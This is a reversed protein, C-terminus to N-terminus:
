RGPCHQGGNNRQEEYWQEFQEPTVTRYDSFVFRTRSMDVPLEAGNFGIWAMGARQAALMGNASDEVVMCEMPAVGLKEAALLFVDPEPKSHICSQASVVCEFYEQLGLRLAYDEIVEQPSSSAVALQYGRERLTQLFKATGPFAPLGHVDLDHRYRDWHKKHLEDIDATVGAAALLRPWMEADPIGCYHLFHELTYTYGLEAMLDRMVPFHRSESDLLVGDMDFIVAKLM